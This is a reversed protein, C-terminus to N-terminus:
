ENKFWRGALLLLGRKLINQQNQKEKKSSPFLLSSNSFPSPTTEDMSEASNYFTKVQSRHKNNNNISWIFAAPLVYKINIHTV